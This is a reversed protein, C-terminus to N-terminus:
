ENRKHGTDKVPVYAIEEKAGHRTTPWLRSRDEGVGDLANYKANYRGRQFGRNEM